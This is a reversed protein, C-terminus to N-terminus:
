EHEILMDSMFGSTDSTYGLIDATESPLNMISYDSIVRLKADKPAYNYVIDNIEVKSNSLITISAGISTESPPPQTTTTVTTTQPSETITTTTQVATTSSFTSTETKSTEESLINFIVKPDSEIQKPTASSESFCYFIRYSNEIAKDLQKRYASFEADNPSEVYIVNQEIEEGSNTLYYERFGTEGTGQWIKFYEEALNWKGDTEVLYWNFFNGIHQLTGQKEYIKTVASDIITYDSDAFSM